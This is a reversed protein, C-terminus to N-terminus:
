ASVLLPNWATVALVFLSTRFDIQRPHIRAGRLYEDPGGTPRFNAFHGGFLLPLALIQSRPKRWANLANSDCEHAEV